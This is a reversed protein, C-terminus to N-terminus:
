VLETIPDFFAKAIQFQADESWHIGDNYADSQYGTASCTDAFKVAESACVKKIASNYKGILTYNNYTTGYITVAGIVIKTTKTKLATIIDTLDSTFAAITTGSQCDNTGIMVTCIDNTTISGLIATVVAKCNAVTDGSVGENVPTIDRSGQEKYLMDAIIKPYDLFNGSGVTNSDGFSYLKRTIYQKPPSYNSIIFCNEYTIHTNNVASAGFGIETFTDSGINITEILYGNSYIEFITDDINKIGFLISRSNGLRFQSSLATSSLETIQTGVGTALLYRTSLYRNNDMDMAARYASVNTRIIISMSLLPAAANDKTVLVELFKGTDIDCMVYNTGTALADTFTMSNATIGTPPGVLDNFATTTFNRFSFDATFDKLAFTQTLKKALGAVKATKYRLVDPDIVKTVGIRNEITCANLLKANRGNKFYLKLKTTQSGFKLYPRGSLDIMADTGSLGNDLLYTGNPDPFFVIGDLGAETCALLFAAYCNTAGDAVVSEYSEINVQKKFNNANDAELTDIDDQLKDKGNIYLAM